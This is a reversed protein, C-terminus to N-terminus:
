NHPHTAHHVVWSVIGSAVTTALGGVATIIKTGLHVKTKFVAMETKIEGIDSRVDKMDQRLEKLESIIIEDNNM